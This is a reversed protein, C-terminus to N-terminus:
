RVRERGCKWCQTFQAEILEDCNDCKWVNDFLQNETFGAEFSKVLELAKDYDDDDIVWVTPFSNAPIEGVAGLLLEGKIISEIYCSALYDKVLHATINDQAIYVQKM